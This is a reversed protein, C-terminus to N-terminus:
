DKDKKVKKHKKDPPDVNSTSSAKKEKKEKKPHMAEEPQSSSPGVVSGRALRQAEIDNDLSMGHVKFQRRWWLRVVGNTKMDLLRSIFSTPQQINVMDRVEEDVQGTDANRDIATYRTHLRIVLFKTYLMGLIIPLFVVGLLSALIAIQMTKNTETSQFSVVSQASVSHLCAFLVLSHNTRM